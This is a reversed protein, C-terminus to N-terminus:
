PLLIQEYLLEKGRESQVGARSKVDASRSFKMLESDRAEHRRARVQRYFGLHEALPVIKNREDNRTKQNFCQPLRWGGRRSVSASPQLRLLVRSRKQTAAGM